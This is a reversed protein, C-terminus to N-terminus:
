RERRNEGPQKDEMRTEPDIKRDLEPNFPDPKKMKFPIKGAIKFRIKWLQFSLSFLWISGILIYRGWNEPGAASNHSTFTWSWVSLNGLLVESGLPLKTLPSLVLFVSRYRGFVAFAIIWFDVPDITTFWVTLTLFYLAYLRSKRALLFFVALDCALLFGFFAEYGFFAPLNLFYWFLSYPGALFRINKYTWWLSYPSQHFAQFFWGSFPQGVGRCDCTSIYGIKITEAAIIWCYFVLSSLEQRVSL